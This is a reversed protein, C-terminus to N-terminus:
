SPSPSALFWYPIIENLTLPFQQSLTLSFLLCSLFPLPHNNEWNAQPTAYTHARLFPIIQRWIDVCDVWESGLASFQRLFSGSNSLVCSMSESAKRVEYHDHQNLLLVSSSSKRTPRSTRRSSACGRQGKVRRPNSGILSVHLLTMTCQRRGLTERRRPVFMSGFM